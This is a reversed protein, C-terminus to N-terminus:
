EEWEVVLLECLVLAGCPEQAIRPANGAAFSIVGQTFLPMRGDGSVGAGLSLALRRGEASFFLVGRMHGAGRNETRERHHM